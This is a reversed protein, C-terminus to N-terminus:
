YNGAGDFDVDGVNNTGGATAGATTINGQLVISTGDLSVDEIQTGSGIGGTGVTLTGTTTLTVDEYSTGRM